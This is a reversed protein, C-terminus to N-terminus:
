NFWLIGEHDMIVPGERFTSATRANFLGANSPRENPLGAPM